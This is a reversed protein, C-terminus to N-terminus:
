RQARRWRGFREELRRVAENLLIAMIALLTILALLNAADFQQSFLQTYYGIGATSVYLEALMVGLLTVSMALRMGTFLSAAVYPLVIRRVIQLQSAGMARAATVYVPRVGRIGAIVNLMIPFIGHSAGFAIKSEPGLGFFLIFLPLITVQPIAYCLLVIPFASKYTLRSLGIPLAIAVGAVVAISFAAALEVFSTGIAHAIKPDALMQPIAAFVKSPPSMFQPDIFWRAAAEWILLLVAISAIQAGFVCMGSEAARERPVHTSVKPAPRNAAVVRESEFTQM